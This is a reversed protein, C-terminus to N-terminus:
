RAVRKLYNFFCSRGLSTVFDIEASPFSKIRHTVSLPFSLYIEKPAKQKKEKKKKSVEVFFFRFFCFFCAGRRPRGGSGGRRQRCGTRGRRPRRGRRRPRQPRQFNFSFNFFISNYFYFLSVCELFFFEFCCVFFEKEKEGERKVKKM